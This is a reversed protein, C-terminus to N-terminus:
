ISKWDRGRFKSNRNWEPKEVSNRNRRVLRVRPTESVGASILLIFLEWWRQKGSSISKQSSFQSTLNQNDKQKSPFKSKDRPNKLVPDDHDKRQKQPRLTGLQHTQIDFNRTLEPGVRSISPSTFILMSTNSPGKPDRWSSYDRLKVILITKSILNRTLESGVVRDSKPSWPLSM